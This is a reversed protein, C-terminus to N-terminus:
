CHCGVIGVTNLFELVPIGRLTCTKNPTVTVDTLVIWLALGTNKQASRTNLFIYIGVVLIIKLTFVKWHMECLICCISSQKQVKEGDSAVTRLLHVDVYDGWKEGRLTWRKLEAFITWASPGNLNEVKDVHGTLIQLYRRVDPAGCGRGRCYDGKIKLERGLLLMRLCLM